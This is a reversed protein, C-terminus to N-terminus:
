GTLHVRVLAAIFLLPLLVPLWYHLTFWYALVLTGIIM